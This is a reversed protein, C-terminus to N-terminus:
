SLLLPDYVTIAYFNLLGSMLAFGGSFVRVVRSDSFSGRLVYILVFVSLLERFRGSIIPFGLMSFHIAVGILLGIVSYRMSVTNKAWFFLAFIILFMDLFYPIPVITKSVDVDEYSSFVPFIPQLWLFLVDKVLFGVFCLFLAGFVAGRSGLRGLFYILVFVIASYHFFVAVVLWFFENSRFGDVDKRWFVFFAISFAIAARLVTMEFLIFYRSLYFFLFLLVLRVSLESSRLAAVKVAVCLGAIVGYIWSNDLGGEVLFYVLATFGPEFRTKVDFFSDSSRVLDFFDVYNLYDRSVGFVQGGALFGLLVAVVVLLAVKAQSRRDQIVENM